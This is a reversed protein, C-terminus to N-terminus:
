IASEVVFIVDGPELLPDEVRGDLIDKARFTMKKVTEGTKRTLTIKNMNALPGFGGVQSIAQMLTMKPSLPLTQPTKVQGMVLVQGKVSGVNVIDNPALVYDPETGALITELDKKITVTESGERRIIEATHIYGKEKLGGSETIAEMLTLGPKYSVRQPSNVEGM